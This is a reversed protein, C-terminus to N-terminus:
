LTSVGVQPDYLGGWEPLILDWRRTLCGEMCRCSWCVPSSSPPGGPRYRGTRHPVGVQSDYLWRWGPLILNWGRTLFVGM